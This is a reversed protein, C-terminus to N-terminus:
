AFLTAELAWNEQYSLRQSRVTTSGQPCGEMTLLQGSREPFDDIVEECIAAINKSFNKDADCVWHLWHVIMTAPGTFHNRHRFKRRRQEEYLEAMWVAIHTERGADLDAVAMAWHGLPAAWRLDHWILFPNFRAHMALILLQEVDLDTLAQFRSSGVAEHSIRSSPLIDTTPDHKDAKHFHGHTDLREISNAGIRWHKSRFLARLTWDLLDLLHQRVVAKKESKKDVADPKYTAGVLLLRESLPSAWDPGANEFAVNARRVLDLVGKSLVSKDASKAISPPILLSKLLEYHPEVWESQRLIQVQNYDIGTSALFDERIENLIKYLLILLCIEYYRQTSPGASNTEPFVSILGRPNKKRLNLMWRARERAECDSSLVLGGATPHAVRGGITASQAKETRKSIIPKSISSSGSRSKHRRQKSGGPKGRSLIPLPSDTGLVRAWTPLGWIRARARSIIVVPLSIGKGAARVARAKGNLIECTNPDFGESRTRVKRVVILPEKCDYTSFQAAYARYIKPEGPRMSKILERAPVMVCVIQDNYTEKKLASQISRAVWSVNILQGHGEDIRRCEDFVPYLPRFEFRPKAKDPSRIRM